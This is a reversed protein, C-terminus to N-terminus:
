AHPKAEAVRTEAEPTSAATGGTVNSDKAVALGVAVVFMFLTTPDHFIQSWDHIMYAQVFGLAAVAIGALSTKWSTPLKLNIQM